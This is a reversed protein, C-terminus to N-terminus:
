WDFFRKYPLTTHHEHELIRGLRPGDYPEGEAIKKAKV